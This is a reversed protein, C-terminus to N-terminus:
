CQDDVHWSPPSSDGLHRVARLLQGFIRKRTAISENQDDMVETMAEWLIELPYLKKDPPQDDGEAPSLRSDPIQFQANEVARGYWRNHNQPSPDPNSALGKFADNRTLM